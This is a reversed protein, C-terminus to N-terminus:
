YCFSICVVNIKNTEWQMGEREISEMSKNREHDLDTKRTNREISRQSRTVAIGIRARETTSVNSETRQDHVVTVTGVTRKRRGTM